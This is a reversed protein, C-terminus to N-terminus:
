YHSRAKQPSEKVEEFATAARVALLLRALLSFRSLVGGAAGAAGGTMTSRETQSMEACGSLGVVLVLTVM